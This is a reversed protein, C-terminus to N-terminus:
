GGPEILRPYAGVVAFKMRRLPLVFIAYIVLYIIAAFVGGAYAVTTFQASPAAPLGLCDTGGALGGVRSVYTIHIDDWPVGLMRCALAHGSEHVRVDLYISGEWWILTWLVVWFLWATLARSRQAGTATEQRLPDGLAAM